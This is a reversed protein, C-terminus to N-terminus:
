PSPCPGLLTARTHDTYHLVPHERSRIDMDFRTEGRWSLRVDVPVPQGPVWKLRCEGSLLYGDPLARESSVSCGKRAIWDLLHRRPDSRICTESRGDEHYNWFLPKFRGSRHYAFEWLGQPIHASLANVGTEQASATLPSQTLCMVLLLAPLPKTRIL